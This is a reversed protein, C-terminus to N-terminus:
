AHLSPGSLMLRYAAFIKFGRRSKRTKFLGTKWSLSLLGLIVKLMSVSGLGTTPGGDSTAVSYVSDASGRKHCQSVM